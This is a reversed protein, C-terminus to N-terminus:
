LIKDGLWRRVLPILAKRTPSIPAPVIISGSLGRQYMMNTAPQSAIVLWYVVWLRGFIGGVRRGSMVRFHREFALAFGQSLFFLIVPSDVRTTAAADYVIIDHIWGSVLFVGILRGANGFLYLGPNGGLTLFAQRMAQQWRIGWFEHLSTSLWPKDFLPPWASPTSEGLGVRVLACLGWLVEGTAMLGAFTICHLFTSLAYIPIIPLSPRFMTTSIPTDLGPILKIITDVLDVMIFNLTVQKVKGWLFATRDIPDAVPPPRIGAETGYDWGIGRCSVFLEFADHLSSSLYSLRPYKATDEITISEGPVREGTRLRGKVTAFEITKALVFISLLRGLSNCIKMHIDEIFYNFLTRLNIWIGLPLLLVRLVLTNPRRALYALFIAFCIPWVRNHANSLSLHQLHDLGCVTRFHARALQLVQSM